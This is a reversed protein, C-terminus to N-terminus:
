RAQFSIWVSGSQFNGVQPLRVREVTEYVYYRLCLKVSKILRFFFGLTKELGSKKVNKEADATKSSTM